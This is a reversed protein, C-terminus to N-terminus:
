IELVVGKGIEQCSEAKFPFLGMDNELPLHIKKFSYGDDRCCFELNTTKDNFEGAPKAFRSTWNELYNQDSQFNLSATFFGSPCSALHHKVICYRGPPFEKRNSSPYNTARKM